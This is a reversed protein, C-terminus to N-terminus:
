DDRSKVRCKSSSDADNCLGFMFFGILLYSLYDLSIFLFTFQSKAPEGAATPIKRKVAVNM